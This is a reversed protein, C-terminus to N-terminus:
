YFETPLLLNIIRTILTDIRKDLEAVEEIQKKFLIRAVEKMEEELSNDPLTM